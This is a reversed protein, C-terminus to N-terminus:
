WYNEIWGLRATTIKRFGIFRGRVGMRRLHNSYIPTIWHDFNGTSHCRIIEDLCWRATCGNGYPIVLHCSERPSCYPRKINMITKDPSSCVYLCFLIFNKSYVWSSWIHDIMHEAKWSLIKRRECPELINQIYDWLILFFIMQLDQHVWLM